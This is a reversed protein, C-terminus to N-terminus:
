PQCKGTTAAGDLVFVLLDVKWCYCWNRRDGEEEDDHPLDQDSELQVPTYLSDHTQVPTYVSDHTKVDSGEYALLAKPRM